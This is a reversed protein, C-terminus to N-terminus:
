ETTTVSDSLLRGVAGQLHRFSRSSEAARQIDMLAAFAPQHLTPSYKQAMTEALKEKVGRPSDPDSVKMTKVVDRHPQLSDHCALFWAEFERSAVAVEVRCHRVAGRAITAVDHALTVPCDDDADLVVLLGGAGSVRASASTAAADLDRLFRDRRLRWPSPVELDFIQAEAALRRLLVPLAKVEGAGEVITAVIPRNRFMSCLFSSPM